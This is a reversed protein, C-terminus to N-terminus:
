AAQATALTRMGASLLRLAERGAADRVTSYCMVERSPLAPLGLKAGVDMTGAPASHRTMVAVALGAAAAAGVVAAGQGIFAETWARGASDLAGVVQKRLSCDPGQTALRLPANGRPIADPAAIWAFQERFLAVGQRHDGEPRLVIVADLKDEDFARLLERSGGVRLELMLAPFQNAVRRLLVPLDIGVLLQSIGIALRVPTVSFAAMAREHTSLLDRAVGLFMSGDPSLRIVRPTREVLRRGVQTELRKLKLSVASQTTGMAEAARTFSHLEAILVFARVADLDLTEM